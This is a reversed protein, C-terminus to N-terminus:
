NDNETTKELFFHLKKDIREYEEKEIEGSLVLVLLFRKVRNILKKLNYLSFSPDNEEYYEEFFFMIREELSPLSLSLPMLSSSSLIYSLSGKTEEMVRENVRNKEEERKYLELLRKNDRELTITQVERKYELSTNSVDKLDRWREVM